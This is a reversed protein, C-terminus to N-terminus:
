SRTSNSTPNQMKPIRKYVLLPDMTISSFFVNNQNGTYSGRDAEDPYYQDKRTLTSEQIEKVGELSKIFEKAWREVTYRQLRQM